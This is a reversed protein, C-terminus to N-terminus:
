RSGNGMPTMIVTRREFFGQKRSASTKKKPTGDFAYGKQALLNNALVLLEEKTPKKGM